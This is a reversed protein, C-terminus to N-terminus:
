RIIVFKGRAVQGNATAGRAHLVFLYLGSSLELGERTRLNYPLDGTLQGQSLNVLDERTWSIQQLMQGSVSYVRLLGQEPVNTFYVRSTGQRAADVEDFDSQVVYPNPVVRIRDMEARSLKAVAVSGTATLRGETFLTFPIVFDIVNKWGAFMPYYGTAGRTLPVLPNCTNRPPTTNNLCAVVFRPFSVVERAVRIPIQITRGDIVTDKVIVRRASDTGVASDALVSEILFLTDGPMWYNAPIPVRVSDGLNGVLISNRALSDSAGTHRQFMALRATGRPTTVTFPFQVSALPRTAAAAIGAAVLTARTTSDTSSQFANPRARISADITARTEDPTTLLFPARPGFADGEWNITYLGGGGTRLSLAPQYRVANPDTITTRLTDGPARVVVNLRPTSFAPPVEFGLFFGPFSAAAEFLANNTVALRTAVLLPEDFGPKERAIAYGTSDTPSDVTDVFTVVSGSVSRNASPVPVTAGQVPIEVNGVLTDASAVFNATASDTENRAASAIVRQAIVTQTVTRAVTDRATIIIFRNAFIVRYDGPTVATRVTATVRQTADGLVITTDLTPLAVGAPRTIPAYVRVTSPGTRFLPSTLTDPLNLASYDVLRRPAFLTQGGAFGVSDVVPIDRVGRSRTVFSYLYTRGAQVEDIFFSNTLLGTVTDVPIIRYPRWGFGIPQGNPGISPAPICPDRGDSVASVTFTAGNDCSKFVLLEAYNNSARSQVRSVIGPNFRRLREWDANLTDTLSRAIFPDAYPLAQQIRIRVQATQAGVLSDRTEASITEVDDLTFTPPPVPSPGAFNAMYTAIVNNLLAQFQATDPAGMFAVLFQTTDGAGLKFPGAAWMNGVNNKVIELGGASTDSFIRACGNRGCNVTSISDPIGDNNYDWSGYGPTASPVFKNYKATAAEVTGNFNENEFTRWFQIANFSTFDRGDLALDEISAMHGFLARDNRATYFNYLDGFGGRRHHNYTITDDAFPSTPNYFPSEADSLLKNRLDGIPSKLITQSFLPLTRGNVGACGFTGTPQRPYTTSCRGTLNGRAFIISGRALDEYGSALQGAFVLGYQFGMYLSDYDIGTGYVAASKNVITMQMFYANRIAPRSFQFWDTRIELGLPFGRQSSPGSGLKTVGGYAQIIERYHDSVLGYTSVDGLFRSQDLDSGGYQWNNFQFANPNAQFARIYASDLIPRQGKFGDVPWTEDCDSVALLTVASGGGTARGNLIGSYDRCGGTTSTAGRFLNGFQGDAPGWRRSRPPVLSWMNYPTSYGTPPLMGSVGPHVARIKRFEYVPVGALLDMHFYTGFFGSGQGQVPQCVETGVTFYFPCPGANVAYAGFGGTMRLGALGLDENAFLNFGRPGGVPTGPERGDNTEVTEVRALGNQQAEAVGSPLTGWATMALIGVSTLRAGARARAVFAGARRQTIPFIHRM